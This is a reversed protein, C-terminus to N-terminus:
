YAFSTISPDVHSTKMEAIVSTTVGGSEVDADFEMEGPHHAQDCSRVEDLNHELQEVMHEAEEDKLLGARVLKSIYYVASNLLISCFKHSSVIEVDKPDCTKLEEEALDYQAKSENIVRKGYESLESEANEFERRFFKQAWRHASMFCLCREIRLRKLNNKLNHQAHKSCRAHLTFCSTVRPHKKGEKALKLLPGDVLHVYQWDNLPQGNSVADDAFELSQELTVSLFQRDELEGDRIQVEYASRLISLFLGRLEQMSMPEEEEILFRMTSKSRRKKRQKTRLERRLKRAHAQGDQDLATLTDEASDVRPLFHSEEDDDKLYPIIRKLNPPAYDEPAVTEKNKEVAELLQAKTLDALIPVHHKVLAFDVHVFRRQSLLQVMREIMWTRYRVEYAHVIKQRTETSDTLRMYRLLPGATTGNIVLTMFALGGVFGFLRRTERTAAPDGNTAREVENDLAIALAIGVAGRLGGYIQFLTERKNTKLGIRSTIPYNVVFLFARIAFLLIYLVFLYAWEVGTFYKDESGRTGTAIVAGWVAGGLTFLVTNLLHEM